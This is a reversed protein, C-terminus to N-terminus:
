LCIIFMQEQTYCPESVELYSYYNQQGKLAIIEIILENKIKFSHYSNVKTAICMTLEIVKVLAYEMTVVSNDLYLINLTQLM